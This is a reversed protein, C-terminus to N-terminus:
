GDTPRARRALLVVAVLIGAAALVALAIPVIPITSSANDNRPQAVPEESGDDAPPQPDGAALMEDADYTSCSSSSWGDGDSYLILGVRGGEPVSLGCNAGDDEAATVTTTADLEGALVAEVQFTWTFQHGFEGQGADERSILTGVFAAPVNGQQLAEEASMFVCSCAHARTTPLLTFLAAVFLTATIALPRDVRRAFPM